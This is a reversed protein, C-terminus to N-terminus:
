CESWVIRDALPAFYRQIHYRLMNQFRDEVTEMNSARIGWVVTAKPYALKLLAAVVNPGDLMSYVFDPRNRRAARILRLLFGGADWRSRKGLDILDMGALTVDRDLDGGAYFVAVSVAIGRDQLGQALTVM